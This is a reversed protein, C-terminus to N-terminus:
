GAVRVLKAIFVDKSVYNSEAVLSGGRYYRVYPVSRNGLVDEKWTMFQEFFPEADYEVYFAKAGSEELAKDLWHLMMPWQPCWGQTLIVAVLNAAGRVDIGFEGDRMALACQDASLKIASTAKM